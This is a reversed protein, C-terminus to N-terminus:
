VKGAALLFFSAGSIRTVFLWWRTERRWKKGDFLLNWAASERERKGGSREREEECSSDLDVSSFLKRWSENSERALTRIVLKCLLERGRRRPLYIAKRLYLTMRIFIFTGRQKRGAETSVKVHRFFLRRTAVRQNKETYRAGENLHM